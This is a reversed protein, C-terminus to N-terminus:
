FKLLRNLQNEVARQNGSTPIFATRTTRHVPIYSTATFLFLSLVALATKLSRRVTWPNLRPMFLCVLWVSPLAICDSYDPTRGFSLPLVCNLLDIVPQSYPSKWGVFCISIITAIAWRRSPWLACAFLLLGILGAFDSLKGTVWNHFSAKLIFDNLALLFISAVFLPTGLLDFRRQGRM